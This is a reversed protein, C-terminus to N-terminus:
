ANSTSTELISYIALLEDIERAQRRKDWRLEGAMIKAVAELHKRSPRTATGMDNRRLVVDALTCAM